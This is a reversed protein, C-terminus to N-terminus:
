ELAGRERRMTSRVGRCKTLNWRYWGCPNDLTGTCVQQHCMNARHLHFSNDIALRALTCVEDFRLATLDGSNGSTIVHLGDVAYSWQPVDPNVGVDSFERWRKRATTMDMSAQKIAEEIRLVRAVDYLPFNSIISIDLCTPHQTIAMDLDDDLYSAEKAILFGVRAEQGSLRRVRIIRSYEPLDGAQSLQREVKDKGQLSFEEYKAEVCQMFWNATMVDSSTAAVLRLVENLCRGKASQQESPTFFRVVQSLAEDSECGLLRVLGPVLGEAGKDCGPVHEAALVFDTDRVQNLVSRSVVRATDVGNFVKKGFTKLIWLALLLEEDHKKPIIITKIM